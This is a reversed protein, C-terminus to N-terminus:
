HATPEPVADEDLTGAPLIVQQHEGLWPLPCGCINCFVRKKRTGELSFHTIHVQGKEWVLQANQFFVNAGHLTGTEKRCRTCHCLYM